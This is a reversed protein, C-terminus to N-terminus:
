QQFIIINTHKKTIKEDFNGDNSDYNDNCNDNGDNTSKRTM